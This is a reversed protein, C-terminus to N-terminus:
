FPMIHLAYYASSDTTVPKWLLWTPVMQYGHPYWTIAQRVATNSNNLRCYGGKLSLGSVGTEATIRICHESKPIIPM